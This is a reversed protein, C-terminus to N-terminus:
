RDLRDIAAELRDLAQSLFRMWDATCTPNGEVKANAPEPPRQGHISDGLSHIRRTFNSMRSTLIELQQSMNDAINMTREVGAQVAAAGLNYTRADQEHM